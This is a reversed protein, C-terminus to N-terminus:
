PTETLNILNESEDAINDWKWLDTIAIYPSALERLQDGTVLLEKIKGRLKLVYDYAENRERELERAFSALVIEQEAPTCDEDWDFEQADTRPTPTDKMTGVM